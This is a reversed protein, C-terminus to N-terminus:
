KITIRDSTMKFEYLTMGDDTILKEIQPVFDDCQDVLSQFNFQAVSASHKINLSERAKDYMELINRRKYCIDIHGCSNCLSNDNEHLARSRRKVRRVPIDEELDDEDEYDEELEEEEIELDDENNRVIRRKKGKKKRTAM